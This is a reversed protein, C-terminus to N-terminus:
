ARGTAVHLVQGPAMSWILATVEGPRAERAGIYVRGGSVRVRPGPSLRVRRVRPGLCYLIRPSRVASAALGLLVHEYGVPVRYVTPGRGWTRIARASRPAVNLGGPAPYIVYDPDRVTM